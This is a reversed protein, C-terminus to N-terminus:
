RFRLWYFARYSLAVFLACPLGYSLLALAPTAAWESFERAFKDSQYSGLWAFNALCGAIVGAAYISLVSFTARFFPPPNQPSRQDLWRAAVLAAAYGVLAGASQGSLFLFILVGGLLYTAVLPVLILGYITNWWYYRKQM